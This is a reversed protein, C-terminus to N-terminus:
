GSRTTNPRNASPLAIVNDAHLEHTIEAIIAALATIQRGLTANTHELQQIHDHAADLRRQLARIDPTLPGGGAATKFETILDTHHEYLRHRALGAEIALSSITHAGDSHTPAGALLRRSADRVKARETDIRQQRSEAQNM